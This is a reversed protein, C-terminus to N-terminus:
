QGHRQQDRGCFVCVQRYGPERSIAPHFRHAAPTARYGDGATGATNNMTTNM